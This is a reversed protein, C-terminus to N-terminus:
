TPSPPVAVAPQSGASRMCRSGPDPVHVLLRTALVRDFSHDAFPLSQVDMTEFRLDTAHMKGAGRRAADLM